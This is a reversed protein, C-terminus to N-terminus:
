DVGGKEASVVQKFFDGREIGPLEDVSSSVRLLTFKEFPGRQSKSMPNNANEGGKVPKTGNAAFIFSSSKAALGYRM